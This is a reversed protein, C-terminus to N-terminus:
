RFAGKWEGKRKKEGGKRGEKMARGRNRGLGKRGIREGEWERQDLNEKSGGKAALLYPSRKLEGLPDAL